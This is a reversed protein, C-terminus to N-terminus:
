ALCTIGKTGSYTSLFSQKNESNNIVICNAAPYILRQESIQFINNKFDSRYGHIQKISFDIKLPISTEESPPQM